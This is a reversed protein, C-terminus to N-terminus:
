PGTEIGTVLPYGGRKAGSLELRVREGKELRDLAQEALRQEGDIMLTKALAYIDDGVVIQNYRTIANTLVGEAEARVSDQRGEETSRPETDQADAGAALFLVVVGYLLAKNM